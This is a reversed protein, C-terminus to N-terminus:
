TDIVITTIFILVILLGEILYWNLCFGNAKMKSPTKIGLLILKFCLPIISGQSHHVNEYTYYRIFIYTDNTENNIQYMVKISLIISKDMKIKNNKNNTKEM